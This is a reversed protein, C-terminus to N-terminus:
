EAKKEEAPAAEDEAPAAKPAEVEPLELDVNKANMAEIVAQTINVSEDMSLVDEKSLVVSVGNKTRYDEVVSVFAENLLTAIRNQEGMLEEQLAAYREQFKQPADESTDGQLAQQMTTLETRMAESRAKLYEGGKKCVSCTQFVETPDIVAIKAGGKQQQCASLLLMAALAAIIFVRSKM